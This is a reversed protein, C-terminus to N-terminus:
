GVAPPPPMVRWVREGGLLPKDSPGKTYPGVLILKRESYGKGHAQWRWHPRVVWSHQWDRKASEGSTINERHPGGLRLVRVGSEFGQRESRRVVHRPPRTRVTTVVPTRTIAWLTALLRRDEAMSRSTLPNDGFPSGDVVGEVGTGHLWDTRGIYSFLHGAAPFAANMIQEANHLIGEGTADNFTINCSANSMAPLEDILPGLMPMASQLEIRDMGEDLRIRSFMGIGLGTRGELDSGEAPPLFVPGWCIAGLRVEHGEALPNSDTGVLDEAFVAFGSTTPLDTLDLVKDAPWSPAAEALLHCTEPEVWWLSATRMTESVFRGDIHDLVGGHRFKRYLWDRLDPVDVPGSVPPLSLSM